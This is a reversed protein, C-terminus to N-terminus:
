KWIVLDIRSKGLLRQTELVVVDVGDDFGYDPYNVTITQGIKVQGPALFSKVFYTDRKDIRIVQRRNIETQANAQTEFLSNLRKDKALPFNAEISNLKEVYRFEKSMDERDQITVAGALGDASQVNWNKQYGLESLKIPPENGMHKIGSLHIAFIDDAILNLVSTGPLELRFIELDGVTNFRFSGGVTEMIQRFLEGTATPQQVYLGLNSSNPFSALQSADFSVGAGSNVPVLACLARIIEEAETNVESVDCTIQGAPSAVLDFEGNAADLTYGVGGGTLVIGNDRVVISAILGDNVKYRLNGADILPPRVNFTEGFCLPALEAGLQIRLEEHPDLVSFKYRNTAPASIGGNRGDVILRFNAFSWRKDGLYIKLSFGHWNFGLWDDHIGDNIVLLDGVTSKDISEVIKIQEKLLDEYHRNPDADIATSVYGYNGFYVTGASHEAIVLIVPVAVPSALWKTYEADNYTTM